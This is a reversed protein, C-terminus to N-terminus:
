ENIMELVQEATAGAEMERKARIIDSEDELEGNMFMSMIKVDIHAGENYDYEFRYFPNNEAFFSIAEDMLLPDRYRDYKMNLGTVAGRVLEPKMVNVNQLWSTIAGNNINEVALVYAANDRTFRYDYYYSDLVRSVMGSDANRVMVSYTQTDGVFTNPVLFLSNDDDEVLEKIEPSLAINPHLAKDRIDRFVAAEVGGVPIPRDGISKAANSLWPYATWSANGISDVTLGILANGQGDETLDVVSQRVAIALAEDSADLPMKKSAFIKVVNLKIMQMLRDDGIYADAVNRAGRPASAILSDIATQQRVDDRAFHESQNLLAEVFGSGEVADSFVRKISDELDPHQQELSALMRGPNMSGQLAAASADRYAKFGMMRAIEYELTDIGANHMRQIAKLEGMGLATTGSGATGKILSGLLKDYIQIRTEFVEEGKDAATSLRALSSLLEDPMVDFQLFSRVALEFNEERIDPNSHNFISGTEADVQFNNSISKKIANQQPTSAIGEAAAARARLLYDGDAIFKDRDEEYKNVRKEWQTITMTAGDGTGVHGAEILEKTKERFFKPTLAYGGSPSMANEIQAFAIDGEAKVFKNANANVVKLFSQWESAILRGDAYMQSINAISAQQEEQTYSDPVNLAIMHGDFSDKNIKRRDNNLQKAVNVRNQTVNTLTNILTTKQGDKIDANMIDSINVEGGLAISLAISDANENQVKNKEQIRNTKIAHLNSLHNSMADTVAKADINEDEGFEKGITMIEQQAGALSGTEAYVREIHATSARQAVLQNVGKRAADIQYDEYGVTKLADYSGELSRNLDAIMERHGEALVQNPAGKAVLTALKDATDDINQLHIDTTQQRTDLIMQANAQTERQTFQSIIQPLVYERVEDDVGLSEIFGELAGRVGNPDNPNNQLAIEAANRADLNISAAYTQLASQRYAARLAKKESEGFVQDEIAQDMDLNTLPVLINNGDADKKYTSGATRGAAEAELIMENLKQKRLDAGLGYAAQAVSDYEAAARTYGSFDPIGTPSVRIRADGTKKFAM